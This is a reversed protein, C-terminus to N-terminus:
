KKFLDIGHSIPKIFNMEETLEQRHNLMAGCFVGVVKGVNM